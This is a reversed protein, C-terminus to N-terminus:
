AKLREYGARGMITAGFRRAVDPRCALSPRRSIAAWYPLWSYSVHWVLMLARDRAHGELPPLPCRGARRPSIRDRTDALAANQAGAPHLRALARLSSRCPCRLRAPRMRRARTRDPLAQLRAVPGTGADTGAAAALVRRGVAPKQPQRADM